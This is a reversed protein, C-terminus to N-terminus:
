KMRWKGLEEAVHVEVTSDNKTAYTFFFWCDNADREKCHNIYPQDNPQPLEDKKKVMKLNFYSCEKECTDKKDGTGFARCQVCDRHPFICAFINVAELQALQELLHGTLLESTNQVFELARQASKVPQVRFSQTPVNVCAASVPAGVTVSRNTVPWVPPPTWLATALVEQTTLMVSVSEANVVVTVQFPPSLKYSIMHKIM